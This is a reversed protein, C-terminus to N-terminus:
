RKYRGIRVQPQEVDYPGLVPPGIFRYVFSYVVSLLASMVVLYAVALILTMYLHPQREVFLLAPGLYRIGWLFGPMPAYGMM